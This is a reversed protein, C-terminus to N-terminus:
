FHIKVKNLYISRKQKPQLGREQKNSVKETPPPPPPPPPNSFGIKFFVRLGVQVQVSPKDFISGCIKVEAWFHCHIFYIYAKGKMQLLNPTLQDRFSQAVGM